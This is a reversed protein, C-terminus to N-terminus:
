RGPRNVATDDAEGLRRRLQAALQHVEDTDPRGDDLCTWPLPGGPHPDVQPRPVVHAHLHPIKNGLLEFNLKAPDLLDQLVRGVTLMDAFFRQADTPDLDTPECVHGDRWIVWCYGRIQGVTALYANAVQGTYIRLGWAPDETHLFDCLLCGDGRKVAPWDAPWPMWQQESANM